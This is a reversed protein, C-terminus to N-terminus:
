FKTLLFLHPESTNKHIIAKYRTSPLLAQLTLQLVCVCIYYLLQIIITIIIIITLIYDGTIEKDLSQIMRLDNGLDCKHRPNQVALANMTRPPANM